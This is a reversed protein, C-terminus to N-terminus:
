WSPIRKKNTFFTSSNRKFKHRRALRDGLTRDLKKQITKPIDALGLTMKSDIFATTNGEMEHLYANDAQKRPYNSKDTHTIGILKEFSHNHQKTGCHIFLKHEEDKRIPQEPGIMRGITVIFTKMWDMGLSPATDLRVTILIEDRNSIKTNWM